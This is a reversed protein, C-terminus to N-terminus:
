RAPGRPGCAKAPLTAPIVEKHDRMMLGDPLAVTVLVSTDLVEIGRSRWRRARGRATQAPESLVAAHDFQLGKVVLAPGIFRLYM